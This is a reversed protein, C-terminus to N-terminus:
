TASGALIKQVCKQNAASLGTFNIGPWKRSLASQYGYELAFTGITGIVAEGDGAAEKSGEVEFGWPTRPAALAKMLYDRRWLSIQCSYRYPDNQAMVVISCAPSIYEIVETNKKRHFTGGLEYRAVRRDECFYKVRHFVNPNFRDILYDDLGFLIYDDDGSMNELLARVDITWRNIDNNGLHLFVPEFYACRNWLVDSAPVIRASADSSVLYVRM